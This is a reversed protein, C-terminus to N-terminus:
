ILNAFPWTLISLPLYVLGLMAFPMPIIEVGPYNAALRQDDNPRYSLLLIRCASFRRQAEQITTAIMAAGGMNGSLTPGIIAIVVSM